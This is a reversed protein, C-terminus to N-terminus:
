KMEGAVFLAQRMQGATFDQDIAIGSPLWGMSYSVRGTVHVLTSNSLSALGPLAYVSFSIVRQQGAPITMPLGLATANFLLTGNLFSARVTASYVTASFPANDRVQLTAIYYDGSVSLLSYGVVSFVAMMALLSAALKVGIGTGALESM